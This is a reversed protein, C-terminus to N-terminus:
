FCITDLCISRIVRHDLYLYILTSTLIDNTISVRHFCFSKLGPGWYEGPVTHPITVYLM